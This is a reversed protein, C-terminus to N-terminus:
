WVYNVVIFGGWSCFMTEQFTLSVHNWSSNISLDTTAYIKASNDPIGGIKEGILIQTDVSLGTEETTSHVCLWAWSVVVAPQGRFYIKFSSSTHDNDDAASGRVSWYLRCDARKVQSCCFCRCHLVTPFLTSCNSEGCSEVYGSIVPYRPPANPLWFGRVYKEAETM